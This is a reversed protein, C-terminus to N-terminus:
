KVHLEVRRNQARGDATDNSAVPKSEGMGEATIRSRVIGHDVLYARVTDARRRSLGLNYQETGVSDTHGEVIIDVSGEHELVQVAEDLIAKAEPKLTAKDFDFHVSRLVIKKKVPPPPPPAQAVPPPPPPAEEGATFNYALQLGFTRPNGYSNGAFGLGPGFDIGYIRYKRDFLNRGYVAIDLTGKQLPIGTYALRGNVVAYAWGEDAQGGPTNSNPVFTTRDQYYVDLHAIFTGTTTPPATYTLGATIQHAPTLAFTRQAAVDETGTTQGTVPDITLDKWRTYKPAIFSYSATAEMGRFPIATAEFETGWIEARDANAPISLVGGAPSAHFIAVQMDRYLSFYGDANIRLRNDLWQSKFGAEFAWLTEPKFPLFYDPTAGTPNFGGSTFGRSARFYTMLDDTWQYTIDGMPSIGPAGSGHIGGFAKGGSAKFGPDTATPYVELGTLHDLHNQEQTFRLGATLSLKDSLIPPTYTAQGYVAYTKTKNFNRYPLNTYALPSAGFFQQQQNITDYEGAYYGGIVYHYRPGTAIVQLEQSWNQVDIYQSFDTLHYPTGDLDDDTQSFFSRYSSISKLQVNGLSGLDGVDWTGTLIHLRQNGDDRAQHAKGDHMLVANNPVADPRNTQIYPTLGGPFIPNPIPIVISGIQYNYIKDAVSGPYVYTLPFAISNDRYRHYEFEYDVTIDKRPQWRVATWNYVRNLNNYNGSGGTAPTSPVGNPLANRWYGDHTKYGATERVSLTGLADSQYFGNKGILPVNVTMRGNFTEFNGVDTKLTISRNEDPKKTIFNVAGGITNRGYLTGQPGRLVEVRELDELDLNSGIIKALYVGDVYLGVKPSFSPDPNGQALGRISISTGNATNTNSSVLLSPAVEGLDVVDRVQKNQLSEAGLATVSIPTEQISEERRQATVTIEEIEVGPGGAKKGKAAQGWSAPPVTLGAILALGVGLRM